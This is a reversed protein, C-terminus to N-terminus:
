NVMLNILPEFATDFQEALLTAPKDPRFETRWKEFPAAKGVYILEGPINALTDWVHTDEANPFVGVVAVRNATMVKERWAAQTDSISGASVQIPKGPMFLCMVPPLSNDGLCFEIVENLDKAPRITTGFNVGSTFSVGRSTAIGAPLLNCAGHLKWVTIGESNPFEGYNVPVNMHWISHELLCEYNLTSLLVRERAGASEIAHVLRCYLTSGPSRPRFQVFYIAMHQMLTPVSPSFKEWLLAMGKEFNEAFLETVETPLSGWSGRFCHALETFLQNGLPPREPAIDGVGFSAGAGFLIANV